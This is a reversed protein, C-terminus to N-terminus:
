GFLAFDFFVNQLGVGFRLSAFSTIFTALTLMAIVAVLRQDEKCTLAWMGSSFMMAVHKLYKLAYSQVVM